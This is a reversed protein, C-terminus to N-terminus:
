KFLSCSCRKDSPFFSSKLFSFDGSYSPSKAFYCRRHSGLFAEMPTKTNLISINHRFVLYHNSFPGCSYPVTAVSHFYVCVGLESSEVVCVGHFYKYERM